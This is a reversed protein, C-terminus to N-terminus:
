VEETYRPEYDDEEDYYTDRPSTGIPEEPHGEPVHEDENLLEPEPPPTFDEITKDIKKLYTNRIEDTPEMVTLLSDSHLLIHKENTYKPWSTLTVKSTGSVLMPEFLHCRPELELQDSQAILYTQDKLLMLTLQM